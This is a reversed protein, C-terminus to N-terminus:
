VARAERIGWALRAGGLRRALHSDEGASAEPAHLADELMHLAYRVCGHSVGPALLFWGVVLGDAGSFGPVRFRDPNSVIRRLNGVPLKQLDVEGHRVIRRRQVALM